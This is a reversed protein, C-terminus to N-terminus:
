DDSSAQGRVVRWLREAYIRSVARPSNGASAPWAMDALRGILEGPSGAWMLREELSPQALRQASAPRLEDVIRCMPLPAESRLAARVQPPVTGPALREALELSPFLFRLGGRGVRSALRDWDLSGREVGTRIVRVLEHVRMLTLNHLGESAHAALTILLLPERLKQEAQHLEPWPATEEEALDGLALRGAGFFARDLGAHVDLRIPSEEHLLYLSRQFAKEGPPLFEVRGLRKQRTLPVYAAGELASIARPWDSVPVALDVDSCPRCAPEVFYETATHVGKLIVPHLGVGALVDVAHRATAHLRSWRRRGHDLHLALVKGVAATTGLKGDEWWRGLLAGTGSTFAALTLALPDGGPPTPMDLEGRGALHDRLAGEIVRLGTQWAAPAVGPWLWGPHGRRRAWILREVWENESLDLAGLPLIDRAARREDQAAPDMTHDQTVLFQANM